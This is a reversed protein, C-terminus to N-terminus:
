KLISSFIQYSFKDIRAQEYKDFNHIDKL